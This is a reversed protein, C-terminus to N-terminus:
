LKSYEEQMIAVAHQMRKQRFQRRSDAIKSSQQLLSEVLLYETMPLIVGIKNGNEDTIFQKRLPIASM